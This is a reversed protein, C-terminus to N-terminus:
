EYLGDEKISLLILSLLSNSPEVSWIPIMETARETWFLPQWFVHTNSRSSDTLWEQVNKPLGEWQREFCRAVMPFSSHAPPPIQVGVDKQVASKLDAADVMGGRRRM